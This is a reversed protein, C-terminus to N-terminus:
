GSKRAKRIVYGRAKLRERLEGAEIMYGRYHGAIAEYAADRKGRKFEKLRLDFSAWAEALAETAADEPLTM